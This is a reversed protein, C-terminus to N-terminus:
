DKILPLNINVGAYVSAPYRVEFTTVELWKVPSWIVGAAFAPRLLVNPGQIATSPILTVGGQVRVFLTARKQRKVERAKEDYLSTYYICPEGNNVFFDWSYRIDEPWDYAMTDGVTTAVVLLGPTCEAAVIGVPRSEPTPIVTHSRRWHEKAKVPAIVRGATDLVIQESPLADPMAPLVIHQKQVKPEPSKKVAFLVNALVSAGLAAALIIIIWVLTKTRLPKM